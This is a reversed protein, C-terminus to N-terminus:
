YDMNMQSTNPVSSIRKQQLEFYEENLECGIYSRNLKKAVAATTGSGMFPDLVVDQPKSGAIICLEVLKEPFTAFHSGSYHQTPLFWVSNRTKKRHNIAIEERPTKSSQLNRGSSSTRHRNWGSMWNQDDRREIHDTIKDEMIGAGNFYYSSTKSFLFIYEHSKVCRDAVPEPMPNKKAWIIDQRLHWGSARMALAVMWPIGYLDKVKYVGRNKHSYNDGINLWLTGDDKLIKKVKEFVLVIKDVYEEPSSELGLQKEHGYDRLSYYPPSTVCTQVQINNESFKELLENCDGIYINNINMNIM